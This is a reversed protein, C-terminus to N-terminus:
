VFFFYDANGLKHRTFTSREIKQLPRPRPATAGGCSAHHHVNVCPGCDIVSRPQLHVRHSPLCHDSTELPGSMPKM